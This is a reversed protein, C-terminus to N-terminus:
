NDDNKKFIIIHYVEDQDNGTDILGINIWLERENLKYINYIEPNHGEHNFILQMGDTDLTYNGTRTRTQECIGEKNKHYSNLSYNGVENLVWESEGNCPDANEMDFLKGTAADLLAVQYLTWRFSIAEKSISPPAKTHKSCSFLLLLAYTYFLANIKM